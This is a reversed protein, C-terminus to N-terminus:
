KNYPTRMHTNALENVKQDNWQNQEFLEDMEAIAKNAFYHKVYERIADWDEEPVDASFMKLLDLQPKSLKGGSTIEMAEM